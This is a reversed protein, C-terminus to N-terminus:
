KGKANKLAELARVVVSDYTEVKILKECDLQRKTTKSVVIKPNINKSVM